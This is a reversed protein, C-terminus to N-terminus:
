SPGFWGWTEESSLIQVQLPPLKKRRSPGDPEGQGSSMSARGPEPSAGPAM